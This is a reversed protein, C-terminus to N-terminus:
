PESRAEGVSTEDDRPGSPFLGAKADSYGDNYASQMDCADYQPERTGDSESPVDLAALILSRRARIEMMEWSDPGFGRHGFHAALFDLEKVIADRTPTERSEAPPPSPQVPQDYFGLSDLLNNRGCACNRASIKVCNDRHGAGVIWDILTLQGKSPLPLGASETRRESM